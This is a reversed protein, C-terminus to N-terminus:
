KASRVTLPHACCIATGVQSMADLGAAYRHAFVQLCAATLTCCCCRGGHQAARQRCRMLELGPSLSREM